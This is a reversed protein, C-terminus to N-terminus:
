LYRDRVGCVSIHGKLDRTVLVSKRSRVGCAGGEGGFFGYGPVFVRVRVGLGGGWLGFGAGECGGCVGRGCDEGSM